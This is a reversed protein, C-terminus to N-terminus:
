QEAAQRRRLGAKATAAIEGFEDGFFNDPWNTISGFVNINLRNLESQRAKVDCFYLGVDNADVEEEAIRRQLRQLLHESHSEVIVQVNRNKWVDIMVDALGSQVSPHLHIEPQELLVTSGDPVFLCLVLVPLIQSVGFGVDTLLVERSRRTRRVRVEYLQSGESVSAVRFDQILGLEKLWKAVYEELSLRKRRFGPSIKQGRERAALIADVVAEGARGMDSPRAGTWAYRREPHARLPGLYAVENLREEFALVLDALFGANQFYARTQDPFRYCKEPAPLPWKRGMSHVFRFDTAGAGGAFLEYEDKSVAKRRMGFRAEGVGYSMERVVPRTPGNGTAQNVVTSFGLRRSEAVVRNEHKSDRVRVAAKREWDLSVELEEAGGDGHLVSGFDGLDVPTMKDGFHFVLGRDASEATQKLLLLAQLLGSKGSSNAGFFGTIPRLTVDGTDTWSKFNKLRLRTLM